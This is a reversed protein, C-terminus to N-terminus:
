TVPHPTNRVKFPDYQGDTGNELEPKEKAPVIIYRFCYFFQKNMLFLHVM